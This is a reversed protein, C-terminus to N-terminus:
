SRARRDIQEDRYYRTKEAYMRQDALNIAAEVQDGSACVAHGMSASLTQGPYFQNNLDMLSEIRERMALAGREDTAPMLVIFEDGGIRAACGPADVAKGLVEGMRRLMADGAAHGAEDNVRKLGDLDIALVGLPWPGKRSLRNLEEVYFARNRLQTLVDHKGLYELYAEAKKRATIDVLSVLVLDWRELHDALVAFQMHINVADGALSYNVVERQQSTRNLWLEQLQESFSDRMEGRFVRGLNKLLDNKDHAAFMRLTQQNVDIVRIEHMCRTVFEPHVKIFTSFDLIGQARVDDLLRKVASFDEVWLSVPSHEFLGRAYRESRVLQRLAHERETIDELSVLLREWTGEHGPLIRGRVVVDLRRGDITYNVTQNHFETEGNWLALWERAVGQHMDDRFVRGLNDMLHEQSGAAFLALTKQNVQLIRLCATGKVVQEPHQHLFAPLDTVGQARWEDFLAKLASFDELWLSVPALAFMHEFDAASALPLPPM